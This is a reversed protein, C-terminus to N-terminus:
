INSHFNLNSYSHEKILQSVQKFNPHTSDGLMRFVISESTSLHVGLASLNHLAVSRDHIRQSSVGDCLVYVEMGRALLDVATQLVCVHAEIGCLVATSKNALLPITDSTLMSFKTKSCVSFSSTNIESVTKGMAKPYQETIIVDINLIRAVDSIFSCTGVVGSFDVILERFREQVDCVLVVTSAPDLHASM